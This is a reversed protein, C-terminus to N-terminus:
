LVRRKGRCVALAPDFQRLLGQLTSIEMLGEDRPGVVVNGDLRQIFAALIGFQGAGCDPAAM